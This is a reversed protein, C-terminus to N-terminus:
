KPENSKTQVSPLNKIREAFKSILEEVSYDDKPYEGTLCMLVDEKSVLDMNKEQEPCETIEIM